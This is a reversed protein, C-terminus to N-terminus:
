QVFIKHGKYLKDRLLRFDRLWIDFTATNGQSRLAILLAKAEVLLSDRQGPNKIANCYSNIVDIRQRCWANNRDDELLRYATEYHKVALGKDNLRFALKGMTLYADVRLGLDISTNVLCEHTGPAAADTWERLLRVQPLMKQQNEFGFPLTFLWYRPVLSVLKLLAHPDERSLKIWNDGSRIRYLERQSIEPALCQNSAKACEMSPVLNLVHLLLTLHCPASPSGAPDVVTWTRKRQRAEGVVERSKIVSCEECFLIKERVSADRSYYLRWRHGDNGETSSHHKWLRPDPLEDRSPLEMRQVPRPATGRIIVPLVFFSDWCAPLLGATLLASPFQM